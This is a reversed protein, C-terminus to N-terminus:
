KSNEFTLTKDAINLTTQRHSILLTIVNPYNLKINRMIKNESKLDLGDTAEDMLLISRNFYLSRAIGIRKIQGGSLENSDLNSKKFNAHGLLEDLGATKVCKAFSVSDIDNTDLDLTINERLSKAMIHVEQPVYAINKILSSNSYDIITDNCLIKGDYTFNKGLLFNFLSSKGVGSDGNIVVVEGALASLSVPKTNIYHCNTIMFDVLELKTVKSEYFNQLRYNSKNLTEKIQNVAVQNGSIATTGAYIVQILPMLRQASLALIGIFGLVSPSSFSGGSVILVLIFFIIGLGEILFRPINALLHIYAQTMRYKLAIQSLYSIIPPIREYIALEAKTKYLDELSSMNKDQLESISKSAQNRWAKFIRNISAYTISVSVLAILTVFPNKILLGIIVAIIICTSNIIMLFQLCTERILRETKVASLSVFDNSPLNEFDWSNELLKEALSQQAYVGIKFAINSQYFLIFIRTTTVTIILVLFYYYTSLNGGSFSSNNLDTAPEVLREVVPGFQLITIAELCASLICVFCYLKIDQINKQSAIHKIQKFVDLM